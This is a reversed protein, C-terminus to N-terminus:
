IGSITALLTALIWMSSPLARPTSGLHRVTQIPPPQRKPQLVLIEGPGALAAIGHKTTEQNTVPM